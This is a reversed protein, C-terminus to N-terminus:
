NNPQTTPPQGPQQLLQQRQQNEQADAPRNTDQTPPAQSPEAEQMPMDDASDDDAPPQPQFQPRMPQAPSLSAAGRATLLVERPVGQGNEGVMVINYGTGQLLQALVDRPSGPGYSGFVRQDAGAGEIKTGTSATVDALIQLLSSNSAEIHLSHNDWSISAHVPQNNIPWNPVPPVASASAAAPRKTAARPKHHKASYRASAPTSTQAPSMCAFVLAAVALVIACRTRRVSFRPWCAARM